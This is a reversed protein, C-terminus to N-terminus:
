QQMTTKKHDHSIEPFHSDFSCLLKSRQNMRKSSGQSIFLLLFQICKRLKVNLFIQHSCLSFFFRLLITLFRYSIWYREHNQRCLSYSWDEQIARRCLKELMRCFILILDVQFYIDLLYKWAEINTAEKGFDSCSCRGPKFNALLVFQKVM